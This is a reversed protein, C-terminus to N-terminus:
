LLSGSAIYANVMLLGLAPLWLHFPDRIRARIVLAVGMMVVFCTASLIRLPDYVFGGLLGLAGLLQLAGTTKRLDPVKYREFEVILASSYFCASGYILFALISTLQAIFQLLHM